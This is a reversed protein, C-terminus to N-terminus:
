NKASLMYRRTYIIHYEYGVQKHVPILINVPLLYV